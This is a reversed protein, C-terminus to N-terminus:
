GHGLIERSAAPLVPRAHNRSLTEWLCSIPGDARVYAAGNPAAKKSM